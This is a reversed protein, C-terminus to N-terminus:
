RRQSTSIAEVPVPTADIIEQIIAWSESGRLRMRTTTLIRHALVAPALHKIDDPLVYDRGQMAAYAECARYLALTGRPSVGLSVGPRERTARVISLLYREVVPQWQVQRITEQLIM